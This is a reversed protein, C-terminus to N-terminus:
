PNALFHMVDGDVVVHNKGELRVIGSKKAHAFSGERILAESSLVEARIFGREFDSHVAGAAQLATAGKAVTWAHVEEESVTFFSVLGLLDYSMRIIHEAAPESIHYDELFSIRDEPSLQAIEMEIEGCLWSSQTHPQDTVGPVQMAQCLQEGKSLLDEGVNLLIMLPKASLFQFGRVSKEEESSLDMSRIPLNSELVPKIRKLVEMESTLAEREKGSTRPIIREVRPLRNEVKVMDSLILEAHLNKLDTAPHPEGHIPDEFGRIIGILAEANGVYQLLTEPVTHQQEDERALGVIDVYKVSAHVTKKPKYIESLCDLRSDPVKVVAINPETKGESYASTQAHAGTLANFVTTKGSKQLGILALDM